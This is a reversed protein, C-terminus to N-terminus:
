LAGQMDCSAAVSKWMKKLSRREKPGIKELIALCDQNASFAAETWNASGLILTSEDILAWKDHLLQPGRSLRVAIGAERLRQVALASAGKGSYYDMAINVVIGRQHAAVLADILLPHTFTFLSILIQEKAGDLARLLSALAAEKSDPLLFFNQHGQDSAIANALAPDYLGLLLNGHMKLSSTTFNASGFFLQQGDIILIKRHMLGSCQVPYAQIGYPRLTSSLDDCASPDYFLTVDLGAAAQQKLLSLIAPDTLAYAQM